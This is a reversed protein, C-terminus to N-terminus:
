RVRSLADGPGAAYGVAEGAAWACVFLAMLPLARALEIRHCRKAFVRQTTRLLLVPPLAVTGVTFLVRQASTMDARRLGAYSRAYLYRQSLYELVRGHKKHGVGIESRCTLIVGDRHMAAHLYDEWRGASVVAGYREILARRYVVNNGAIADVRSSLLPPLLHSYECLFAAWDVASATAVNYVSGGVVDSGEALASLLQRAWNPGVIVHDEIVAINDASACRFGTARLQPITTTPEAALVRVRPFRAHVARRVADGCRDIVLVELAADEVKGLAELCELLVDPGNVSPVVVSLEPHVDRIRRASKM